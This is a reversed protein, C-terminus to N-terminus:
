MLKVAKYEKINVIKQSKLKKLKLQIDEMSVSSIEKVSIHKVQNENTLIRLKTNNRSLVRVVEDQYKVLTM